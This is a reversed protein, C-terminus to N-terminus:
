LAWLSFGRQIPQKSEHPLPNTRANTVGATITSLCAQTEQRADAKGGSETDTRVKSLPVKLALGFERTILPMKQDEVPKSGCPNDLRNGVM